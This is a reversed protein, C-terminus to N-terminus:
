QVPHDGDLPLDDPPWCEAASAASARRSLWSSCWAVPLILACSLMFFATWGVFTGILALTMIGFMVSTSFHDDFRNNSGCGEPCPPWMRRFRAQRISGNLWLRLHGRRAHFLAVGFAAPSLLSCLMAPLAAGVLLWLVRDHAVLNVCGAVVGVLLATALAVMQVKFLGDAVYLWWHARARVKLPDSRRLWSATKIDDWGAKLCLLATGAAPQDTLEYLVIAALLLGSWNIAGRWHSSAAERGTDLAEDGM